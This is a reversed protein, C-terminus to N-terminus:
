SATPWTWTSTDSAEFGDAYRKTIDDFEIEAM